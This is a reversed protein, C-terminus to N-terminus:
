PGLSEIEYLARLLPPPEAQWKGFWREYIKLIDGNLFVLALSRDAVLRFVADNQRVM